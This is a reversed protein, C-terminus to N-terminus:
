FLHESNKSKTRPRGRPRKGVPVISALTAPVSANLRPKGEDIPSLRSRDCPDNHGPASLEKAQSDNDDTTTDNECNFDIVGVAAPSSCIEDPEAPVNPEVENQDKDTPQSDEEDKAQSDEEDKDTPQEDGTPQEDVNEVHEQVKRAKRRHHRHTHTKHHKKEVSLTRTLFGGQLMKSMTIRRINAYIHNLVQMILEVADKFERSQGRPGVLERITDIDSRIQVIWEKCKYPYHANMYVTDLSCHKELGLIQECLTTLSSYYPITGSSLVAIRRLDLIGSYLEKHDKVNALMDDEDEAAIETPVQEAIIGKWISKTCAVGALTGFAMGKLINIYLDRM